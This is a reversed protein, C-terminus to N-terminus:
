KSWIEGGPYILQIINLLWSTKLQLQVIYMQWSVFLHVQWICLWQLVVNKLMIELERQRWYDEQLALIRSFLILQGQMLCSTQFGGKLMYIDEGTAIPTEIADSLTRIRIPISGHFWIKLGHSGTNIWLRALVSPM